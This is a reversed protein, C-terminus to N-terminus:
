LCRFVDAFHKTLDPLHEIMHHSYMADVSSDHFPLPYRLDAWVDCRGTFRNADINVWGPMYKKQGPGLHAKVFQGARPARLNKYILANMRMFPGALIYFAEKEFRSIM